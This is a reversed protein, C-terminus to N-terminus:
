SMVNMDRHPYKKICSKKEFTNKMGDTIVIHSDDMRGRGKEGRGREREREREKARRIM